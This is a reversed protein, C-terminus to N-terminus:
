KFNKLREVKPIFTLSACPFYKRLIVFYESIQSKVSFERGQITLHRTRDQCPLKRWISICTLDSKM